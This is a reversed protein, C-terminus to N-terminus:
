ENMCITEYNRNEVLGNVYEVFVVIHGIRGLTGIVEIVEHEVETTCGKRRRALLGGGRSWRARCRGPLATSNGNGLRCGHGTTATGTATVLRITRRRQILNTHRM